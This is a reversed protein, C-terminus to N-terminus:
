YSSYSRTSLLYVMPCRFFFCHPHILECSLDLCFLFLSVCNAAISHSGNHKCVPHDTKPKEKVVGNDWFLSSFFPFANFLLLRKISLMFNSDNEIFWHRFTFNVTLKYMFLNSSYAGGWL